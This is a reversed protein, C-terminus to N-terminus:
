IMHKQYLSARNSKLSAESDVIIKFIFGPNCIFWDIVNEGMMMIGIFYVTYSIGHSHGFCLWITIEVVIKKLFFFDGKKKCMEYVLCRLHAFTLKQKVTEDFWTKWELRESFM